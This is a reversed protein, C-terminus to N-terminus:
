ELLTKWYDILENKESECENMVSQYESIAHVAEQYRMLNKFKRGTPSTPDCKSYNKIKDLIQHEGQLPQRYYWMNDTEYLFNTTDSDILRGHELTFVSAYGEKNYDCPDIQEGSTYKKYTPKNVQKLLLPECNYSMHVIDGKQFPVPIHIFLRRLNGPGGFDPDPCKELHVIKGNRDFDMFLTNNKTEKMIRISHFHKKACYLHIQEWLNEPNDYKAALPHSIRKPNETFFDNPNSRVQELIDPNEIELLDNVHPPIISYKSNPEMQYFQKIRSQYFAILAHLYDHLSNKIRFQVSNHLPMDPYHDILIQWAFLKEGLAKESRNIIIAMELPNFIHRIERCYDAVDQSRLFTYIDLTISQEM